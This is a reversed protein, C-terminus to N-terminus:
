RSTAELFSCTMDFEDSEDKNDLGGVYIWCAEDM